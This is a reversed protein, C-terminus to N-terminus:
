YPTLTAAHGSLVLPPVLSTRNTRPLPPPSGSGWTAARTRRVRGGHTRAARGPPITAAFTLRFGLGREEGPAVAAAGETTGVSAGRARASRWPLHSHRALGPLVHLNLETHLRARGGGRRAGARGCARPGPTGAAWRAGTGCRLVFRCGFVFRLRAQHSSSHLPRQLRSSGRAGFQAAVAPHLSGRLKWLFVAKTGAVTVHSHLKPPWPTDDVQPSGLDDSARRESQGHQIHHHQSSGFRSRGSSVAHSRKICFKRRLSADRSESVEFPRAPQRASDGDRTACSRRGPEPGDAYHV